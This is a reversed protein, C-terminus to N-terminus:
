DQTTVHAGYRQGVVAFLGQDAYRRIHAITRLYVYFRPPQYAARDGVSEEVKSRPPCRM